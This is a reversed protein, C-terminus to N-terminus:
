QGPLHLSVALLQSVQGLDGDSSIKQSLSRFTSVLWYVFRTSPVGGMEFDTIASINKLLISEKM